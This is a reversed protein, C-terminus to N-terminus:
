RGIRYGLRDPIQAIEEVLRRSKRGTEYARETSDLARMIANGGLARFPEPPVRQPHDIVLPALPGTSAARDLALQSLLRGVSRSPGVGNGTFGFGAHWVGSHLPRVSPLHNPSADIPGGWAHVFRRGKLQPFFRLVDQKVQAVLRPSVSDSLRPISGLGIAGGGWGFAIRQDATTRMYHVLTRSDVIAEGGTWGLDDLLDPVPETMVMHSSTLTLERRLGPWAASSIGCTILGSNATIVGHDAAVRARGGEVSISKAATEEFVRVGRRLLEQRLGMALLGPHVTAVKEAFVGSRFIESFCRRAIQERSCPRFHEALGVRRSAEILGDLSHDHAPDCSVILEGAMRFQIEIGHSAAWDGIGLALSDSECILDRATDAGFRQELQEVEDALGHCFGGNRGSPGSGCVSADILVIREPEIQDCLEIAAWMGAYGGGVIVVDCDVSGVLPPCVRLGAFGADKLWWGHSDHVM